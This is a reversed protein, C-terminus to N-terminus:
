AKRMGRPPAPGVGPGSPFSPCRHALCPADHHPAHQHDIGYRADDIEFQHLHYDEWCIAAQIARHLKALSLTSPVEIRRWIPPRIGDLTVKLRHVTATRTRTPM